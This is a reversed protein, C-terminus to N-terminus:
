RTPHYKDYAPLQKFLDGRPGPDRECQTHTLASHAFANPTGALAPESVIFCRDSVWVVLEGTSLTYQEGYGHTRPTWLSDPKSPADKVSAGSTGQSGAVDGAVKSLASMWDTSAKGPTADPAATIPLAAESVPAQLNPRGLAASKRPKLNVPLPRAVPVTPV